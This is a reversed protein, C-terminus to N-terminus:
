AKWGRNQAGTWFYEEDAGARGTRTAGHDASLQLLSHRGNYSLLYTGDDCPNQRGVMEPNRNVFKCKGKLMDTIEPVDPLEGLAGNIQERISRVADPWKANLQKRDILWDTIDLLLLINHM